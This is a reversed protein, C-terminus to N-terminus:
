KVADPTASRPKGPLMGAGLFDGIRDNVSQDVLYPDARLRGFIGPAIALARRDRDARAVAAADRVRDVRRCARANQADVPGSDVRFEAGEHRRRSQLRVADLRHEAENVIEAPLLVHASQDFQQPGLRRLRFECSRHADGLRSSCANSIPPTSSRGTRAANTTSAPPSRGSADQLELMREEVTGSAILKYVFVPKDQGIRHARDTAQDEVAPNWWPDYHIM